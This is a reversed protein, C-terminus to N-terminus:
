FVAVTVAGESASTVSAAYKAMVGTTYHPAPATWGERRRALEEDSVDAHLRGKEVDLTVSDGEHLLAIPAASAPKPPSM